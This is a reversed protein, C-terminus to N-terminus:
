KEKEIKITVTYKFGDQEVSSSLVEEIVFLDKRQSMALKANLVAMQVATCIKEKEMTM